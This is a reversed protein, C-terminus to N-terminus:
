GILPPLALGWRVYSIPADLDFGIRQLDFPDLRMRMWSAGGLSFGLEYGAERLVGRLEPYDHIRRGGPYAVAVPPQGLERLLDDRAALLDARAEALALTQLVRHSRAHSQVEMGAARMARAQDWTLLLPDALRREEAPDWNVGAAIAVHDLYREVDLGREEKVVRSLERLARKLNGALWVECPWPYEVHLSERTSRHLIISLRDWWFLRRDTLHGTSVFFVAQMGRRILIPLVLDHNDRYGDDFTVLAANPRLRCRGAVAARLEDLTIPQFYRQVLELQEDLSSPTADVLGPDLEPTSALPRVSHYCLVTLWSSVRARARLLLPVVGTRDLM